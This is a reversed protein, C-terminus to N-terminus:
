QENDIIKKIARLQELTLTPHSYYNDFYRRIHYMTTEFERKDLIEQETRYLQISHQSYNKDTYKLTDHAYGYRNDNDVYFYKNGSKTVTASYIESSRKPVGYLVTGVPMKNSMGKSIRERMEKESKMENQADIYPACVKDMIKNQM